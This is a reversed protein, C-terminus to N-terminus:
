RKLKEALANKKKQPLMQKKPPPAERRLWLM